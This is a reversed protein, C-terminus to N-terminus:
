VLARVEDATLSVPAAFSDLDDARQVEFEDAVPEDKVVNQKFKKGVAKIRALNKAKIEEIEEATKAVVNNKTAKVKEVAAKVTKVPKAKVPKEAAVKVPRTVVELTGPAMGNDVIWKYFNRAEKEDKMNAGAVMLPLVDAMAKDANAAMIAIALGRKSNERAM